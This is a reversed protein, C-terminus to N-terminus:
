RSEGCAAIANARAMEAIAEELPVPRIPRGQLDLAFVQAPDIRYPQDTGNAVAVDVPVINDVPKGPLIQMTVTGKRPYLLGLRVLDLAPNGIVAQDLDRIQINVHGKTNALPGLLVERRNGM